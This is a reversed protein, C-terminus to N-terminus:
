EIKLYSKLKEVRKKNLWHIEKLHVKHVRRTRGYSSWGCFKNKEFNTSLIIIEEKGNWAVIANQASQNLHIEPPWVFIGRDAFTKFPFILFLFLFFLIGWRILIKIQGIKKRM